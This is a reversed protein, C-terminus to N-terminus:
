EGKNVSAAVDDSSRHAALMMSREREQSAALDARVSETQEEARSLRAALEVAREMASEARSCAVAEVQRAAGLDAEAKNLRSALASIESELRPIAEARIQARVLEQRVSEATDRERDARSEAAQVSLQAAQRVEDLERVRAELQGAQQQLKAKAQELEQALAQSIKEAERGAEAVAQADAQVESSRQEASRVADAVAAGIQRAILQGIQPDIAIDAGQVALRSSKWENLLPLVANPSGGGLAAIVARVSQRQGADQLGQAAAAVNEYTVLRTNM